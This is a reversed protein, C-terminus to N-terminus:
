KDDEDVKVFEIDLLLSEHVNDPHGGNLNYLVINFDLLFNLVHFFGVLLFYNPNILYKKNRFNSFFLILEYEEDQLVLSYLSFFTSISVWLTYVCSISSSSPM